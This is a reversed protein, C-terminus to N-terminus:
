KKVKKAPKTPAKDAEKSAVYLGKSGPNNKNVKIQKRM